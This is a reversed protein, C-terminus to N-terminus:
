FFIRTARRADDDDITLSTKQGDVTSGDLGKTGYNVQKQIYLTKVAQRSPNSQRM